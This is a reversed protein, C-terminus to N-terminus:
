GKLVMGDRPTGEGPVTGFGKGSVRPGSVGLGPGQFELGCNQGNPNLGQSEPQLKKPNPSNLAGGGNVM